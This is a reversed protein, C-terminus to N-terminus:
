VEEFIAEVEIFGNHTKPANKLADEQSLSPAPKDERVINELGTIHDTPEVGTTDIENLKSIYGLIEELQPRLVKKESQSLPLNALNTVYDIDLNVKLKQGKVKSM